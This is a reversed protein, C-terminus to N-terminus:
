RQQKVANLYCGIAHLLNLETVEVLREAQYRHADSTADDALVESAIFLNRDMAKAALRLDFRRSHTNIRTAAKM